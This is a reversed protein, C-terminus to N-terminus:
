TLAELLAKADQLDATDFGETFWGYIPALLDYAEQRKDQQQWLRALSMAARLEWSRAQQRRAVALAQHYCAVAEAQHEASLALLLDGKLRYLEAEFPREGNEDVVALAEDLLPLGAEPQGVNGYATALMALLGPRNVEAGTVRWAALGQCIAAIGAEGQGQAAVALGRYITGSAIWFAFGQETALTLQEEVHEQFTPWERRHMYVGNAISLAFALSFPHSLERVLTLAEHIQQLAQEPYGLKWLVRAAYVRCGMGPDQGYLFAHARHKQPDYLAIGQELHARAPVLEGLRYLTEGLARHGQLLLAPDHQHQALTLLHEALERATQHNGRVTYFGWLGFLVSFIQRTDGVQQCLAYARAYAREVEPAAWGKTSLLPVGITHQLTLEQQVRAPTEPLTQLLELARTLHSIAEVHASRQIAREGAQQWYPLAQAPLGAATYHQAVLEPQTEVTARFQTELVQAIRQHLQQRRSKLLSQYAADQLLAHKFLYTAQPPVGRQYLIEAEVLQHLGHQLAEAALPAVAQLLDYAFERGLTSGLQAVERATALRDLRAMLSDHLTAPIALPPLPGTLTYRGDQEQLLGSELVAKTLEEVFLPVGDTKAVIQALVEAPLAKGGTVYHVMQAVQPHPLRSLTLPTLHARVGWPPTFEPRVTFLSYLRATPGQDVVLHLLELTSPDVWHLDEVIFLVPQRATEALLWALLAELTHQKQRQLTLTLPPYHAPLPLSLLAAFLPVVQSLPMPHSAVAAELTRLKEEPATDRGWALTRQLHTIVPYFASHQAYPM